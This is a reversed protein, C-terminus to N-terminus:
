WLPPKPIRSVSNQHPTCSRSELFKFVSTTAHMSKKARGASLSFVGGAASAGGAGGAASAGGAGGAPWQTLAHVTDKSATPMKSTMLIM